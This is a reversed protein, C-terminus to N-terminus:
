ALIAYARTAASPTSLVRAPAIGSPIAPILESKLDSFTTSANTDNSQAYAKVERLSSETEAMAISATLM